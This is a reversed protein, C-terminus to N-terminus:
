MAQLLCLHVLAFLLLQIWRQAICVLVPEHQKGAVGAIAAGAFGLLTTVAKHQQGFAWSALQQPRSTTQLQQPDTSQQGPLSLHSPLDSDEVVEPTHEEPKAHCRTSFKSNFGCPSRIRPQRYSKLRQKPLSRLFSDCDARPAVSCHFSSFLSRSPAHGTLNQM